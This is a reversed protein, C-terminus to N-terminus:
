RSREESLDTHYWVTTEHLGMGRGQAEPDRGLFGSGRRPVPLARPERTTEDQQPPLTRNLFKAFRFTHNKEQM